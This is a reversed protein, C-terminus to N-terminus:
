IFFLIFLNQVDNSFLIFIIQNILNYFKSLFEEIKEKQKSDNFQLNWRKDLNGNNTTANLISTTPQLENHDNLTMNDSLIQDTYTRSEDLDLTETDFSCESEFSQNTGALARNPNLTNSTINLNQNIELDRSLNSNFNPNILSSLNNRNDSAAVIKINPETPTLDSTCERSIKEAEEIWEYNDSFLFM